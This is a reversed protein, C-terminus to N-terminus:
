KLKEDDEDRIAVGRTTQHNKFSTFIVETFECFKINTKLNQSFKNMQKFRCLDVENKELYRAGSSNIVKTNEPEFMIPQWYALFDIGEIPYV